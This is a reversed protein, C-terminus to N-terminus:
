DGAVYITRPQGEIIRGDRTTARASLRHAGPELGAPLQFDFQVRPYDPDYALVPNMRAGQPDLGGRAQTVAEGDIVIDVRSIGARDAAAGYFNFGPEIIEARQPRAIYVPPLLPCPSAEAGLEGRVRATFLGVATRGPPLEVITEQEIAAFRRCLRRRFAVEEPTHYLYTPEPLVLVVGTGARQRSLSAEDLGWASRMARFRTTEDYPDDLAFVAGRAGPFELRAAPIHGATALAPEGGFRQRARATAARLAPDLQRWDELATQLRPRLSEPLREPNAWALGFGTLGIAALLAFVPGFLAILAARRRRGALSRAEDVFLALAAPLFPILAPYALFPWHPLRTRYFPSIATFALFVTAGTWLALGARADGARWARWALVAAGCLGAFFAPTCLGIQETLHLLLGEPHWTWIQRNVAHFAVSPWGERMNYLLAPALGAAALAGALWFGPRAWLRRGDRTLLAFLVVGLGVAGFRYHVFLGLGGAVGTLAWWSWRGSTMARIAAGLMIATLLQLAGEPYFITGSVALPPLLMSILAAWLAQRHGVLPKALFWVGLPILQAVALGALRLALVNPGFVAEVVRAYLPWGAPVDPYALDPHMGATFFHAEEWLVNTSAALLAKWLTLLAGVILVVRLLARDDGLLPKAPGGSPETWDDLPRLGGNGIATVAPSGGSRM